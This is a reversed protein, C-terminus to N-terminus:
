PGGGSILAESAEVFGSRLEGGDGFGVPPAALPQGLTAGFLTAGSALDRPRPGSPVIAEAALSFPDFIQFGALDVVSGSGDNREAEVELAHAGLALGSAVFSVRRPNGIIFDFDSVAIPDSGIMVVGSADGFPPVLGLAAILDVGDLRVEVTPVQFNRGVRAAASVSHSPDELLAGNVPVDILITQLGCPAALLAPLVASLALLRARM